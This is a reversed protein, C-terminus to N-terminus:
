LLCLHHIYVVIALTSCRYLFDCSTIVIISLVFIENLSLSLQYDIIISRYISLRYRDIFRYDIFRIIHAHVVIDSM